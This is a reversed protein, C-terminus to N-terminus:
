ELPLRDLKDGIEATRMDKEIELFATRDVNHDIKGDKLVVFYDCVDTLTSLIHSSILITKGLAKLRLIIETILMNSQIDVGNFPEDLIFVQNKQLLIGTLALKKKMGTSYTAAFRSLPLEFINIEKFDTIPIHRANCLLQLYERGTILSLFYPETHLFGMHNRINDIGFEIKGTYDLIGAICKFLTTKGAGNPGIVGYTKGDEFNLDICNLAHVYGYTKSLNTIKIM